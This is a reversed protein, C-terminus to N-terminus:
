VEVHRAAVAADYDGPTDVDRLISDDTWPVERLTARRVLASVGENEALNGVEEALRWPFLTPHGRQGTFTPACIAPQLPDYGALVANIASPSLRPLDAPALLWVDNPRPAYARDIHGLALGVSAKMDLTPTAPCVLDVDYSACRHVLDQDDGRAVVIVRDVESAMWSGLVQEIVAGGNWPLLLKNAGM